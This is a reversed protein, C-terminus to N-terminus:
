GGAAAKRLAVTESAGIRAALAPATASGRGLASFLGLDLAGKLARSAQHANVINIIREPTIPSTASM